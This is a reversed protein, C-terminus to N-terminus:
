IYHKHTINTHNILYNHLLCGRIHIPTGKGYISQRDSYKRLNNASSAMAIDEAPLEVFEQRISKVFDHLKDTDSNTTLIIKVADKLYKRIKKPTSSRVIELGMVKLEPPDYDVGESNYVNLAYRKKATWIGRDAIVERNMVMKNEYANLYKALDAYSENIIKQLTKKCFTDLFKAKGRTDSDVDEVIKALNLYVSDTDIAIVYDQNNTALHENLFRNLAKEIWQITLQGSYTIAEAIDINFWAFYESGLAGYGSNALIKLAKQKVDWSQIVEEPQKQKKLEIMQKKALDRKKFIKDMLEPLFGHTDKHFFKGNAAMSYDNTFELPKKNLLEDVSVTISEDRILTEPSLNYQMILSPYLSALDFSVVWDHMGIIPQKVYAGAFQASKIGPSKIPVVQNKEYLHNYILAEWTKVQSFVDEFNIKAQYAITVVLEILKMKEDLQEVLETDIINYEVFKDWDNEYFEKITDFESYDLKKADLEVEAIHDLKYSERAKYTYKRYLDLYDLQSIGAIDYVTLVEGRYTVTRPKVISWPSLVNQFKNSSPEGLVNKIRNILYPLDFMKSNWGSVIDPQYDQWFRIFELLMSKEDKAVVMRTNMKRSVPRASFTINRKSHKDRVTILLLENVAKNVDPFGKDVAVEIDIFATRLAKPKPEIIGPYNQTIFQQIYNVNGHISFGEVDKYQEIFQKTEWLNGPQIKKVPEGHVTKWDSDSDGRIFLDPSFETIRQKKRGITRLLIQNGYQYVNSYTPLSEKM